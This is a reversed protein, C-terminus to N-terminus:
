KLVEVHKWLVCAFAIENVGIVFTSGEGRWNEHFDGTSSLM